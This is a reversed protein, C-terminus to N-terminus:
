RYCRKNPPSPYRLVETTKISPSTIVSAHLLSLFFLTYFPPSFSFFFMYATSQLYQNYPTDTVFSIATPSVHSSCYLYFTSWFRIFDPALHHLLSPRHPRLFAKLKLSPFFTLTFQKANCSLRSVFLIFVSDLSVLLPPFTHTASIRHYSPLCSAPVPLSFSTHFLFRDSPAPSTPSMQPPYTFRGHVVVSYAERVVRM